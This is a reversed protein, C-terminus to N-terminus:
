QICTTWDGGGRSPKQLTFMETGQQSKTEGGYTIGGLLYGYDMARASWTFTCDIVDGRQLDYFGPMEVASSSPTRINIDLGGFIASASDEQGGSRPLIQARNCQTSWSGSASLRNMDTYAFVHLLVHVTSTNGNQYPDMVNAQLEVARSEQAMLLAVLVSCVLEILFRPKNM